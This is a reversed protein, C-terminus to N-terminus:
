KLGQELTNRFKSEEKAMEFLVFERNREVEPYVDAFIRIVEEAIQSCFNEHIGLNRGHRVARRILRRVIYGQDVNSPAIKKSDGMIMTATRIHDVAIRMAKTIDVSEIYERGSIEEIKQILPWLTDIQFIDVCGNLVRITRDMGMGTDVNKKELLVFTQNDIKNYQMFVDNWIELWNEKDTGPNSGVPPLGDSGQWYFIESSSGCPGTLGAPGWWNDESELVGDPMYAIKDEPVGVSKWIEASEDDKPIYDFRKDGGFVTVSLKRPDLGLWQPSTLFEWSWQITEKKFYDGLSWNGLMEFFTLHSNDGVEDIDITRVCKQVDVLRTGEPHTQGLLYPVLPQMGATNFLATPDNEPVLSASPIIKHGKSAFFELYKQRLQHSTLMNDNSNLSLM